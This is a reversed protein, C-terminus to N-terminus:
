YSWQGLHSIVCLILSLSTRMALQQETVNGIFPNHNEKFNFSVLKLRIDLQIKTEQEPGKTNTHTATHSDTTFLSFLAYVVCQNHTHTHPHAHTHKHKHTHMTMIQPSLCPHMTRM